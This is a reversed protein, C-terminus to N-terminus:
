PLFSRRLSSGDCGRTTPRTPSVLSSQVFTYMDTLLDSSGDASDAAPPAMTSSLRPDGLAWRVDEYRTVLWLGLQENWSVPGRLQAYRAYPDALMDPGFLPPVTATM